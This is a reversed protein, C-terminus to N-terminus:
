ESAEPEDGDQEWDDFEGGASNLYTEPEDSFTWVRAEWYEAGSPERSAWIGKQLTAYNKCALEDLHRYEGNEVIADPECEALIGNEEMEKFAREKADDWTSANVDYVQSVVDGVSERYFKM